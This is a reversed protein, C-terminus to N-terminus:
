FYREKSVSWPRRPRLFSSSSFDLLPTWLLANKQICSDRLLKSDQLIGYLYVFFGLRSLSKISSFGKTEHGPDLLMPRLMSKGLPFIDHSLVSLFLWYRVFFALIQIISSYLIVECHKFIVWFTANLNKLKPTKWWNKDETQYCQKVALKLNKLFDSFHVM